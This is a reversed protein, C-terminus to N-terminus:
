HSGRAVVAPTAVERGIVTRAYLYNTRGRESLADLDVRGAADCPFGWGRGADFLSVFRLEWNTESRDADMACEEFLSAIAELYVAGAFAAAVGHMMTFRETFAACRSPSPERQRADRNVQRLTCRHARPLSAAVSVFRAYL